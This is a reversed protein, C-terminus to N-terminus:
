STNGTTPIITEPKYPEIRMDAIIQQYDGTWEEILLRHGDWDWLYRVLVRINFAGQKRYFTVLTGQNLYWVFAKARSGPFAKAFHERCQRIVEAPGDESEGCFAEVVQGQWVWEPLRRIQWEGHMKEIAEIYALLHPYHRGEDQVSDDPQLVVKDSQDSVYRWIAESASSAQVFFIVSHAHRAFILYTENM